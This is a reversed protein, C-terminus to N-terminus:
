ETPEVNSIGMREAELQDLRDMMVTSQVIQHLLLQGAVKFGPLAVDWIEKIADWLVVMFEKFASFFAKVRAWVESLLEGLGERFNDNLLAIIFAMVSGVVLWGPLNALASIGLVFAKLLTQLLTLFATWVFSAFWYILSGIGYGGYGAVFFGFTGKKIVTVAEGTDKLKWTRVESSDGMDNDRTVIAHANISFGLSVFDVDNPDRNGIAAHAHRMAEESHEDNIEITSLLKDAIGICYDIDLDKTAKDKPFKAKIKAHIEMKLRSPGYFKVFPSKNLKQLFSSGRVAIARVEQFLISTDMVINVVMREASFMSTMMENMKEKMFAFMEDPFDHISKDLAEDFDQMFDLELLSDMKGKM